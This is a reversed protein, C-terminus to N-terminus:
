REWRLGEGDRMKRVEFRRRRNDRGGRVKKM